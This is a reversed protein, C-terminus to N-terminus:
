GANGELVVVARGDILSGGEHRLAFNYIAGIAEQNLCEAEVILTGPILDLREAHCSVARLSALYGRRCGISGCPVLAAHVAMAQAAYEIGCLIGLWGNRRLPNGLWRHTATLCQIRAADWSQVADLLCMDGAHPILQSIRIRDILV